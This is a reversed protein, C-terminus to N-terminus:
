QQFSSRHPLDGDDARALRAQEGSVRQALV